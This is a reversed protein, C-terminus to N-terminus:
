DASSVTYLQKSAGGENSKSPLYYQPDVWKDNVKIEYHIHPGTSNGTSGALAITQGQEVTDGVSVRLQSNHSYATVVGHGHDVEVRNGGTSHVGAFVM